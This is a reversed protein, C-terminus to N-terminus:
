APLRDRIEALVSSNQRAITLLEVLLDGTTRGEDVDDGVLNAVSTEYLAAIDAIRDTWGRLQDNEWRSVTRERVGLAEGAAAQTLGALERAAALREGPTMKRAEQKKSM